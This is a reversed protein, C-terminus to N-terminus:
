PKIPSFCYRLPGEERLFIIERFSVTRAAYVYGFCLTMKHGQGEM